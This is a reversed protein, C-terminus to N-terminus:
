IDNEEGWIDEEVFLDQKKHCIDIVYVLLDETTLDLIEIVDDPNYRLIIYERLEKKTLM